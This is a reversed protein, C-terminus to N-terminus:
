KDAAQRTIDWHLVLCLLYLSNIIMIQYTSANTHSLDIKLSEEPDTGSSCIIRLKIEKTVVFLVCYWSSETKNNSDLQMNTDSIWISVKVRTMTYYPEASSWWSGGRNAQMMGPPHGLVSQAQGEDSWMQWKLRLWVIKLKLSSVYISALFDILTNHIM